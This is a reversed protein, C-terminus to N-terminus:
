GSTNNAPFATRETRGSSDVIEPVPVAMQLIVKPRSAVMVRSDDGEARICREWHKQLKYADQFNQEAVSNLMAQPEAEIM